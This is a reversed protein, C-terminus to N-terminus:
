FKGMNGQSCASPMRAVSLSPTSSITQAILNWSKWGIHDCDVLTVSLRVSLRCAIAIGRKASYHMARYFDLQSYYLICRRFHDGSRCHAPLLRLVVDTEVGGHQQYGALGSHHEPLNEQSRGQYRSSAREHVQDVVKCAYM